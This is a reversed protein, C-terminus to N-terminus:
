TGEQRHERGARDGWRLPLTEPRSFARDTKWELEAEPVALTVAGFRDFLAGLAVALEMRGLQAGLCHHIGHGFALHPNPTRGLDLNGPADFVNEDRNASNISPLVAEGARVLVGGIEVDELAIRIPGVGGGAQSYRLLEEVAVPLEDPHEVLRRLAAPRATLTLVAHVIESTTAHYGAMLLTEAFALLEETDLSDGEDRATVLATLLDDSPDRQKAAILDGLYGKLKGAAAGVEASSHASVSLMVDTWARFLSQDAAPVGLMECILTIPLPQALHAILDAPPGQEAMADVMSAALKEVRPRLNEIRRTTFARGVLKRLRTHAPPDMVFISKSGAAIPLLRPADPRTIAERSFRPDALVQRVEAHTTVLWVAHGNALGVRAVPREARLAAYEEPPRLPHEGPFPFRPLAEHTPM